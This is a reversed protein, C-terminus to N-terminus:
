AKSRVSLCPWDIPRKAHVGFRGPASITLLTMGKMAIASRPKASSAASEYQAVHAAGRGGDRGALRPQAVEGHVIREAAQGVADIEALPEFRRDLLHALAARRRGDEVDIEIMELVDVVREAVRDAVLEDAVHGLAEGAGQAAVVQDGADAAVLEGDDGRGAGVVGGQLRDGVADDGREARGVGDAVLGDHDAGRDADRDDVLMDAAGGVDHAVGVHREIAGLVLAAVAGADVVVRHVGVQELALEHLVIQADAISM